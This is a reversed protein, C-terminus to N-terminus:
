ISGSEDGREFARHAIDRRYFAGDFSIKGVAKYAADVAERLTTGEGTVSLVRGGATLIDGDPSLKTGCHFVTAGSAAAEDLGCIKKGKEYSGPYGGSAIIVTAACGPKVTIDGEELRGTAAHYLAKAFNGGLRPLVAETEPDGFRANFEVVNVRSGSKALRGGEPTVMLGAYLIGRYTISRKALEAVVPEIIRSKIEPLMDDTVVPAPSYAGMGGTNPGKDGDFVRKHDQSAPLLIVTKSDTMALISCEEGDLFEEILVEAGASGFKNAVLMDDIAAEAQAVTEAVVVGKGAALGDAKIVVPLGYSALAAKAKAPDTFVEAQGTPVGAAKMVEKAFRKSGEMRAGDACPGFAPIGVEQLADVVGKVLPAEPGVVVLDPRHERSWAVIGAVDEAGVGIGTAIGATGANGPAMFLTHKEEDKSLRWAIAHERGGSGIILITM